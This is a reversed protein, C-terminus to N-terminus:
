IEDRRIHLEIAGEPFNSRSQCILALYGGGGAGSLKWALVGPVNSYKDIYEQVGEQIMGPFMAIQAEFSALFASAFGALDREMIASWCNDAASALAEVKEKTVESGAMLDCNPKRPFMPIMCLHDELWKLVGENETSEIKEPWFHNNYYHRSLGPICIGISDQAGCLMGGNREPDNEFCFVLRALMESNMKPVQMPWIKKITNRTNTGMGCRPRVEFTPELSITIAWGPAYSSVFPQDIWTGALDLRTPLERSKNTFDTPSVFQIDGQTDRSLVRYEIGHEECFKKKEPKSGDENVVFIDPRLNEVTPIFDMLGTGTNIFADKVYRVSKVMFLREQESYLPKHGKLEQVTENSGIGVYLDGFQAAERFFEMHGSHLMDYCGSVFVKKPANQVSKQIEKAIKRTDELNHRVMAQVLQEFSTARPNWGLKEKAKSPDGYMQKAETPRFYKPDVEVITKGTNKDVGKEELGKGKWELIIGAEKFALTCFERVSRVEGSAIVFDEAKSQQLMLWMCEVYDKAYGWDRFSDLNGLYLKDQLKEAIRAAALTIKCTVFTEPRRESEHNFLIGNCAYMGYAERYLRVMWYGYVKAVAYPDNPHLPTNENEPVETANGFMTATSAQFFRCTQTLGVKRIAELIRLVGLADIDSTLEPKDFSVKVNSQAAFNYIEDPRVEAVLNQVSQTDTLDVTHTYFSPNAFLKVFYDPPNDMIRVDAGHVEYGKDLLLESLFSGDQGFVGTILAKKM